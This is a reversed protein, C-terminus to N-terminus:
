SRIRLGLLFIPELMKWWDVFPRMKTRGIRRAPYIKSVPVETCRYGLQLLKILLYVELQYTDLWRQHLNIRPDTFVSTKIARYGNTSETIRKGTILGILLPHVRTAFKRYLPMDGGYLGGDLYRSGVVFDCDQECIPDLLRPLEEPADKNNGAIVVTIDFRESQALDFAARLAAGVGMVRGLGLVVAGERRAVDATGDTSGDDVVLVKDVIHKPARRVVEGIKREENYAPAILLITKGKYM